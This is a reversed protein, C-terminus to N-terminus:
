EYGYPIESASDNEPVQYKICALTDLFGRADFGRVRVLSWSSLGMERYFDIMSKALTSSYYVVGKYGLMMSAGQVDSQSKRSYSRYFGTDDVEDLVQLPTDTAKEVVKGRDTFEYAM